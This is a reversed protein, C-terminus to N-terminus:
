MTEKSAPITIAAYIQRTEGLWVVSSYQNMKMEPAIAIQAIIRGPIDPLKIRRRIPLYAKIIFATVSKLMGTRAVKATPAIRPIIAKECKRM